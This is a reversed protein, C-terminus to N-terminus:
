RGASGIGVNAVMTGAVRDHLGRRDRDVLVWGVVLLYAPIGVVPLAAAASTVAWRLTSRGFGPPVGPRDVRQVQLGLLLKGFTRGSVAVPLLEYLGSLAFFTLRVPVQSGRGADFLNDSGAGTVRHVFEVYVVAMLFAFTVIDVSRAVLRYGLPARRV